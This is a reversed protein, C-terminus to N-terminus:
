TVAARAHFHPQDWSRTRLIDALVDMAEWVQTYRLFLPSFGLRVTDPARFDALVARAALAQVVPYGESIRLSVHGGRILDDRPSGVTIGLGAARAIAVAGLRRAKTQLETLALGDFVELAGDLAALSLIPPTGSAFRAAGDKPRYAGDFAFPAAHGMWGPLPSTLKPAIASAAYVFAPAGPGGNLYKYTCGTALLAGSAGLRLDLIGTAHSLDWIILAGHRRAEAEYAAMDAVEGTRYNVLSRIFVGGASLATQTEGPQLLRAEAGSLAGLGALIYQDTPFEDAEVFLLYRRALPLAAGALKFLNVSVSDALIVEDKGAGILAAIRAGTRGALDIWGASNWSRVLDKSWAAQAAALRAAAARSPPGLSHGVLYTTGEPLDFREAAGALPDRRDLDEAEDRSNPPQFTM